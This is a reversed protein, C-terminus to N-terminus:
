IGAPASIRNVLSHGQAAQTLPGLSPGLAEREATGSGVRQPLVDAPRGAM